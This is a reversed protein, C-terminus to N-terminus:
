KPIYYRAPVFPMKSVVADHLKKRVEIKVTTGNKGFDREVYGMAINKKLSPSPCGSTIQGISKEGSGDYIVAGARPPPGVSVFGVRRRAPKNTIQDLIVGAGPFDGRGRRSKSILWTLSAEVPTTSEDIDNGYLCLGAELRLSDRAGLGVMKVDGERSSLLGEIVGVIASAPVSIEVGDEGTYGCRTVRCNEVGCVNAPRTTMFPLNSLDFDVLPQLVKTMLPGQVAILANTNHELSVDRGAERFKKEAASMNAWDKDICGANSVIYLFGQDTSSVILDDCIGGESNTFVTLTGTNAKLGAIDGVVISEMMACRDAGSVQTQLMHSVDFIGVSNRVQFHEESISTKYQVPMEWGAFPVMKAGQSLHFDYLCTKRLDSKTAHNRFSHAIIRCQSLLTIGGRFLAM